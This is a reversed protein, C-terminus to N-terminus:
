PTPWAIGEPVPAPNADNNLGLQYFTQPGVVGDVSINNARQFAEVASKTAADYYGTFRGQYFDLHSLFIQLYVVDFGNRGTFIARGGAFTYIWTADYFGYGAIANAPFGTDGNQEADKKFALVANATGADFSGTAPQGIMKAYRFCNLRNQLITVDGGSMGQSLQRSGYVPGGYTTNYGTGQGYIFFTQPGVIGDTQIGFYSQVNLVAGRTQPGFDGDVTISPGMPGQPPNMTRVMLNYVAQLVAVDTGRLNPSELRLERSSFPYYPAFQTDFSAM